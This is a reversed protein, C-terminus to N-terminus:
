EVLQRVTILVSRINSTEFNNRMVCITFRHFVSSYKDPFKNQLLLCCAILAAFVAASCCLSIIFDVALPNVVVKCCCHCVDM